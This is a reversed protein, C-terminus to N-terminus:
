PQNEADDASQSDGRKGGPMFGGAEREGDHEKEGSGCMEVAHLVVEGTHNWRVKRLRQRDDVDGSDEFKEASRSKEEWAEAFKGADAEDKQEDGHEDGVDVRRLFVDRKAASRRSGEPKAGGHLKEEDQKEPPGRAGLRSSDTRIPM